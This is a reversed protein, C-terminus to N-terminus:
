ENKVVKVTSNRDDSRVNIFYIGSLFQDTDLIFLRNHHYENLM